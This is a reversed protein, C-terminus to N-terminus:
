DATINYQKVIRGYMEREDRLYKGFTESDMPQAIVLGIGEVQGRVPQESVTAYMAKALTDVIPRPTGAPAFYGFWFKQEYGPFTDALTPVNPLLALRSSATVGLPKLMSSDGQGKFETVLAMFAPVQGGLVAATVDGGGKYPVAEFDAGAVSALRALAIKATLGAFGFHLPKPQKKAYDFFEKPSNVPVNKNVTLVMYFEALRAIPTLDRIFDFDLKYVHSNIPLTASGFGITYGDPASRVIAATGVNGFAGVKNDVLFTQGLKDKLVPALRRTFTDTTGPGFPVIITVPKEPYKGQAFAAPAGFVAALAAVM